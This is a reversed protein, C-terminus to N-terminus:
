LRIDQNSRVFGIRDKERDFVAYYAQLFSQGLTWEKSQDPSLGIVCDSNCQGTSDRVGEDMCNIDSPATAKPVHFDLTYDRPTLTLLIPELGEGAYLYFNLDPLDDIDECTNVDLQSLQSGGILNHPYYTLYTGTDVIARCRNGEGGPCGGVSVTSEEVRSVSKHYTITVDVIEITWFNKEIVDAYVFPLSDMEISHTSLSQTHKTRIRDEQLQLMSHSNTNRRNDKRGILKKDVGGFTIVGGADSIYYSIVNDKLLKREIMSDMVPVVGEKYLEEHPYALGLVGDWVVDALIPVKITDAAAIPQHRIKINGISMDEYM